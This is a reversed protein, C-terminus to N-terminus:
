GLPPLRKRPGNICHRQGNFVIDITQDWVPGPKYHVRDDQLGISELLGALRRVGPGCFDLAAVKGVPPQIGPHQPQAGWDIFFPLQCGLDEDRTMLLSWHLTVGEPTERSGTFLDSCIVGCSTLADRIAPLDRSRLAWWCFAPEHLKECEARGPSNSAQHPDPALLELYTEGALPLLANRTGYGPHSGGLQPATGTTAEFGHVADDLSPCGILIHDLECTLTM